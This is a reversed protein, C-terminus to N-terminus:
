KKHERRHCSHCLLKLNLLIDKGKKAKHIIHHREVRDNSGCKECVLGLIERDRKATANWNSRYRAKGTKRNLKTVGYMSFAM